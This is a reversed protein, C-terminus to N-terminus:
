VRSAPQANSHFAVAQSYTQYQLAFAPNGPEVLMHIACECTDPHWLQIHVM